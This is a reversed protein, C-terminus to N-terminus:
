HTEPLRRLIFGIVLMAVGLVLLLLTIGLNVNKMNLLVAVIILVLVALASLLLGLTKASSKKPATNESAMACFWLDKSRFRHNVM